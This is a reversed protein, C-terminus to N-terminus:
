KFFWPITCKFHTFKIIHLVDGTFNNQFDYVFRERREVAGELFPDQSKRAREEM